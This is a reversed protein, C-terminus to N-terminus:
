KSTQDRAAEKATEGREAEKSTQDRAAEKATEGREAEKSTQDRAAEKAVIDRMEGNFKATMLSANEDFEAIKLCANEYFEAFTEETGQGKDIDLNKGQVETIPSNQAQQVPVESADRVHLPSSIGEREAPQYGDQNDDMMKLDNRAAVGGAPESESSCVLTDVDRM